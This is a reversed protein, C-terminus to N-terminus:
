MSRRACMGPCLNTVKVVISNGANSLANGSSDKDATLKWCKGCGPGAGDGPGAGYYFESIAVAYGAVPTLASAPFEPVERDV